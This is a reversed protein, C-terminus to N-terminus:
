CDVLASGASRTRVLASPRYAALGGWSRTGESIVPYNDAGWLGELTVDAHIPARVDRLFRLYREGAGDRVAPRM